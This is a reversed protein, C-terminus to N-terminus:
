ESLTAEIRAQLIAALAEIGSPSPHSPDRLGGAGLDRPADVCTWQGYQRYAEPVFGCDTGTEPEAAYAVALVPVEASENFAAWDALTDRKSVPFPPSVSAWKAGLFRGAIVLLRSCM